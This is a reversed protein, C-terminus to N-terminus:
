TECLVFEAFFQDSVAICLRLHTHPPLGPEPVGEGGEGGRYVSLSSVKAVVLVPAVHASRHEEPASSSYGFSATFSTFFYPLHLFQLRRKPLSGHKCCGGGPFSLEHLTSTSTCSFKAEVRGMLKRVPNM